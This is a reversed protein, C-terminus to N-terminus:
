EKNLLKLEFDKFYIKRILKPCKQISDYLLKNNEKVKEIEENKKNVLNKYDELLKRIENNKGAENKYKNIETILNLRSFGEYEKCIQQNKEIKNLIKELYECAKDDIDQEELPKSTDIIIDESIEMNENIYEIDEKPILNYEEENLNDLILKVQYLAKEKTM